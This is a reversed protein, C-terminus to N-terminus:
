ILGFTLPTIDTVYKHNLWFRQGDIEIKFMNKNIEIIVAKRNSLYPTNKLVKTIVYDGIKRTM